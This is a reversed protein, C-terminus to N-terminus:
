SGNRSLQRERAELLRFPCDRQPAPNQPLVARRLRCAAAARTRPVAAVLGNVRDLTHHVGLRRIRHNLSRQVDVWSDRFQDGRHKALEFRKGSSIAGRLRALTIV